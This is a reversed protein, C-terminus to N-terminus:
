KKKRNKREEKRYAKCMDLEERQLMQGSYRAKQYFPLIRELVKQEEEVVMRSLETATKEKKSQEKDKAYENVEKYFMQRMKQNPNRLFFFTGASKKKVTGHLKERQVQGASDKKNM